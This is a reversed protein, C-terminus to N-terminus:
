EDDQAQAAEGPARLTMTLPLSRSSSLHPPKPPEATARCDSVRTFGVIASTTTLGAMAISSGVVQGRNSIGQEKAQQDSRSAWYSAGIIYGATLLVDVVPLAYNTTCTQEERRETRRTEKPGEAFMLSCGNLHIAAVLLCILRATTTLGKRRRVDIRNSFRREM